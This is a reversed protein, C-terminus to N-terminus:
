SSWFGFDCRARGTGTLDPPYCYETQRRTTPWGFLKVLKPACDEFAPGHQVGCATAPPGVSRAPVSALRDLAGREEAWLGRGGGSPRTLTAAAAVAPARDEDEGVADRRCVVCGGERTSARRVMVLKSKVNTQRYTAGVWQSAAASLRAGLGGPSCPVREGYRCVCRRSSKSREVARQCLCRLTCRPWRGHRCGPGVRWIMWGWDARGERHLLALILWGFLCRYVLCLPRFWTASQCQWRAYRRICCRGIKAM